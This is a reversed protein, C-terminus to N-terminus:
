TYESNFCMNLAVKIKRSVMVILDCVGVFLLRLFFSYQRNKSTYAYSLFLYITSFMLQFIILINQLKKGPGKQLPDWRACGFEIIFLRM